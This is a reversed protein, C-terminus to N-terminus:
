QWEVEYVIDDQAMSQVTYTAKTLKAGAAEISARLIGLMLPPPGGVLEKRYRIYNPQVEQLEHIGWPLATSMSHVFHRAGRQPGMVRALVRMVQGAVGKFYVQTLQYGLENYGEEPTLHSLFTSRLYEAVELYCNYSYVRQPKEVEIGFHTALTAQVTPDDKLDLAELLILVTRAPVSRTGRALIAPTNNFQTYTM